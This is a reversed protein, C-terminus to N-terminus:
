VSTTRWSTSRTWPRGSTTTTPWPAHWAPQRWRGRATALNGV